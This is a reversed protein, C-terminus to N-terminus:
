PLPDAVLHSVAEFVQVTVPDSDVFAEGIVPTWPGGSVSYEGTYVTRLRVVSPGHRAFVHATPMAPYPAGADTTVLVDGDGYSWEFREPTARVRVPVGVLTTTLTVPRADVFLNTEVNVLTRMSAPEVRVRGAPLPLDRLERVTLAPVASRPVQTRRLCLSGDQRWREGPAPPRAISFVWYMVDDPVPTAACLAIAQPCLADVITTASRDGTPENGPCGPTFLVMRAAGARSGGPSAGQGGARAVGAVRAGGDILEASVRDKTDAQASLAVVLPAIM